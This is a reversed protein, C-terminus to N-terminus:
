KASAGHRFFNYSTIKGPGKIGYVSIFSYSCIAFPNENVDPKASM